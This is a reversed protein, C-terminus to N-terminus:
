SLYVNSRDLLVKDVGTWEESRTWRSLRSQRISRDASKIWEWGSPLSPFGGPPNEKLGASSTPPPGGVYSRIRRIVPSYLAFSEVGQLILRPLKLEASSWTTSLTVITGTPNGSSDKKNYKLDKRLTPDQEDEWARLDSWKAETLNAFLVHRRVDESVSVWEIEYSTEALAGIIGGGADFKQEAEVILRAQPVASHETMPEYRVNTVAGSFGGWGTTGIAPKGPDLISEPGQYSWTVKSGSETEESVPFNHELCDAVTVKIAM